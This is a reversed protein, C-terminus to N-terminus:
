KMLVMKKSISNNDFQLKYIYVGSTLKSADFEVNYTQAKRFGSLLTAVEQGIANYVKLTVFGDKPMSFNITTTPNFPNPYNQSLKFEKAPGVVSEVATVAETGTALATNIAAYEASKQASWKTYEAPFWNLDGVPFGWAATKLDADSYSLDVPIPFDAYIFNEEYPVSTLRWAELVDPNDKNAKAKAYEYIKDRQTTLLDKPDTFTPLKSVWGHEYLYPFKANDNFYGQTRPNMTIMQSTWTTYGSVSNTNWYSVLDNFKPDWYTVNNDVYVHIDAPAYKSSDISAVNILGMPAGPDLDCEGPDFNPDGSYGQVQCNVFINNTVSLNKQYGQDMFILGACDVFTNHNYILRKVLNRRVKYMMGQAMVHTSNEVM